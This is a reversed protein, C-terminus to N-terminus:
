GSRGDARAALLKPGYVAAFLGFAAVWCLGSATLLALHLDPLLPSAVRGAAAATVLLYIATTGAGATLPRGTHGLTARTMVALTMTGVAGATLAHLAATAPLAAPWLGAIGLLLLGAPVWAYGLHLVWVLPEALTRHGRWRAVRVAQALGAALALAAAPAAEPLATWVLLAALTLALAARDVPGFPAPLRTEGRKKLWNTTFSPVVRGGILAILATLTAIGLRLGIGATAALGLAALHTLANALLLVAVAACVPLNRWNRGALIERLVAALLVAPFALDVAAAPAAGIQGSCAVAARGALWLLALGALPLGQLPMRGTWNPVATLLFGAVAAMAFGFIMEHAHWTVPDFATPLALRGGLAALWLGLAAAAWLGAGLFFPRFGHRLLTPGRWARYRPIGGSLAARM